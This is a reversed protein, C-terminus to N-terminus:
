KDATLPSRPALNRATEDANISAILDAVAQVHAAWTHFVAGRHPNHRAAELAAEDALAVTLPKVKAGGNSVVISAAAVLLRPRRPYPSLM